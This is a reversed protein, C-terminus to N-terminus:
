EQVTFSIVGPITAPLNRMLIGDYVVEVKQGVELDEIKVVQDKTDKLELNETDIQYSVGQEDTLIILNGELEEIVANLVAGTETEQATRKTCGIALMATVCFLALLFLGKTKRKM